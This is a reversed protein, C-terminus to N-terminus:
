KAEDFGDGFLWWEGRDQNLFKAARSLRDLLARVTADRLEPCITEQPKWSARGKESLVADCEKITRIVRWAVLWDLHDDAYKHKDSGLRENWWGEENLRDWLVGIFEDVPKPVGIRVRYNNPGRLDRQGCNELWGKAVLGRKAKHVANWGIGCENAVTEHKLCCFGERNAHLFLISWVLWETATLGSLLERVLFPLVTGPVHRRETSKQAGSIRRKPKTQINTQM